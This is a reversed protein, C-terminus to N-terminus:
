VFPENVLNGVQNLIYEIVQDLVQSHPAGDRIEYLSTDREILKKSLGVLDPEENLVWGSVCNV